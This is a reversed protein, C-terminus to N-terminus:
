KGGKAVKAPYWKQFWATFVGMFIPLASNILGVFSSLETKMLFFTWVSTLIYLIGWALTLIANTKMFLLNKFAKDGNYDNASYFATLPIKTLCSLSWMIGFCLYAAPIIYKENAGLILAISAACVAFSSIIDYFTKKANYFLLPILACVGVSIISGIFPNIAAAVWFAIWPLLLVKMDTKGKKSERKKENSAGSGFYDDWKLMLDFDGSVSYQRRMLAEEGSINGSAIDKWVKLPTQIKTTFPKFNETLVEYGDKKMVIQYTKCSDTYDMELVVDKGSHSKPNYLAAMQKTFVLSEDAVEGKEDISWSADAMAEFVAKPFLPEKLKEMIEDSIGQSAYEKGARKVVSLYENTREKLEPYRFLEGQACFIKQYNGGTFRDFMACVSDYNGKVTHFGCTSILVTKKGSLDYRSPHGGNEAAQSMFPLSMPLQRDILTKLKGPVGFYYLPFSWITLDAWILDDIIGQMDDNIVCKGPTKNWCSFCGMCSRVDLDKLTVEKLDVENEEKLGEVFATSLKYTNGGKGRPSGNILLVKM